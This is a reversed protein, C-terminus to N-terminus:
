PEKRWKPSQKFPVSSFLCTKWSQSTLSPHAVLLSLMDALVLEPFPYISNIPLGTIHFLGAFSSCLLTSLRELNEEM